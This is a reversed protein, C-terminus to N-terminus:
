NLWPDKPSNALLADRGGLNKIAIKWLEEDTCSFIDENRIDSVLWAGENIEGKLQGPAWGSYGMFFRFTEPKFVDLKVGEIVDNFNGNWFLGDSIKASETIENNTHIYNFSELSVPGGQFVPAKIHECGDVLQSVTFDTLQNLVFGITGLENHETLLVVTRSFNPDQLFPESILIKGAAPDIM